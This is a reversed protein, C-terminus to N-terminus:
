EQGTDLRGHGRRSRRAPGSSSPDECAIHAVATQVGQPQASRGVGMGFGGTAALREARFLPGETMLIVADYRASRQPPRHRKAM